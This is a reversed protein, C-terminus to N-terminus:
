WFFIILILLGLFTNWNQVKVKFSARFHIYIVGKHHDGFIDVIKDYGWFYENRKFGWFHNSGVNYIFIGPGVGGGGGPTADLTQNLSLVSLDCTLNILDDISCDKHPRWMGM